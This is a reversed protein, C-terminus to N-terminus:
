STKKNMSSFAAASLIFCFSVSHFLIFSLPVSATAAKIEDRYVNHCTLDHLAVM